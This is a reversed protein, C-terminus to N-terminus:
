GHGATQLIGISINGASLYEGVGLGAIDNQEALMNKGAIEAGRQVIEDRNNEKSESNSSGLQNTLLILPCFANVPTLQNQNQFNQQQKQDTEKRILEIQNGISQNRKGTGHLDLGEALDVAKGKGAGHTDTIDAAAHFGQTCIALGMVFFGQILSGMIETDDEQECETGPKAAAEDCKPSQMGYPDGAQQQKYAEQQHENLLLEFLM